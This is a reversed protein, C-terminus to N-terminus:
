LTRTARRTVRVNTDFRQGLSAALSELTDEDNTTILIHQEAYREDERYYYFMRAKPEERHAVTEVTPLRSM